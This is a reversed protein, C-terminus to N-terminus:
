TTGELVKELQIGTSTAYYFKIAEIIGEEGKDQTNTLPISYTYILSFDPSYYRLDLVFNDKYSGVATRDHVVADYFLPWTTVQKGGYFFGIKNITMITSNRRGRVVAIAGPVLFLCVSFIYNSWGYDGYLMSIFFVALMIGGAIFNITKSEKVSFDKEADLKSESM